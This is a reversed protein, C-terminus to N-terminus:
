DEKGEDERTASFQADWKPQLKIFLGGILVPAIICMFFSLWTMIAFPGVYIYGFPKILSFFFLGVLIISLYISPNKISLFEVKDRDTRIRRM